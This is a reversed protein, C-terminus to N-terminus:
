EEKGERWDVPVVLFKTLPNLKREVGRRYFLYVPLKVVFVAKLQNINYNTIHILMTAITKDIQDITIHAHM